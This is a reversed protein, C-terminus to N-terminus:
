ATPSKGAALVAVNLDLVAKLMNSREQSTPELRDWARVARDYTTAKARLETVKPTLPMEKLRDIIDDLSQRVINLSTSKPM